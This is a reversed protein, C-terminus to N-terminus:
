RFTGDSKLVMKEKCVFAIQSVSFSRRLDRNIDVKEYKNGGTLLIM